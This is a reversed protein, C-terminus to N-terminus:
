SSRSGKNTKAPSPKSKVANKSAVAPTKKATAPKSSPKDSTKKAKDKDTAPAAKQVSDTKTPEQTQEDKILSIRSMRADDGRRWGEDKIRTYGGPRDKYRPGLENLLKNVSSQTSLKRMLLRRNHVTNDKARTILKEVYPRLARAKPKTTVISEHMILSEALSKLLARRQDRTRSLTYSQPKLAM